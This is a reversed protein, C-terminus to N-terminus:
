KKKPPKKWSRNPDILSPHLEEYGLGTKLPPSLSSKMQMFTLQPNDRIFESFYSDIHIGKKRKDMHKKLLKVARKSFYIAQSGTIVNHPPKNLLSGRRYVSWVVDKKPIKLPDELFRIDDEIYYIPGNHKVMSSLMKDKVGEFLVNNRKYKEGDIKYGWFIQSSYGWNKKLIKQTLKAFEKNGEYSIMCFKANVKKHQVKKSTIVGKRKLSSRKKSRVRLRKSRM